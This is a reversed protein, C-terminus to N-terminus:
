SIVANAESVIKDPRISFHSSDYIAKGAQVLIVQPSQHPVSLNRAVQNSIDRYHILDLYHLDVASKLENTSRALRDWAEASIGCRVSHKFILQPKQHSAEIVASFEEVSEITNWDQM